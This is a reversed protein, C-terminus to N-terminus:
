LNYLKRVNNNTINSKIEPEVGEFGKELFTPSDPWTGDPHPYDSGWMFNDPAYQRALHPGVNDQQYTAFVQRRFLDSPRTKILKSYHWDYNDAWEYDMRDLLYPIWGIGSEALVVKLGPHRELAGCMVISALAEDSQMAAVCLGAAASAPEPSFHSVTTTGVRIHFSLVLEHEEAAAWLPEWVDHWIPESAFAFAFEAGKLGLGNKGIRKVEAVAAEPSHCPLLGLGILRSPDKSNFDAIFNNYAFLSAYLQDHDDKLSDVLRFIGYIVEGDVEDLDQDVIRLTPDAPRNEDSFFGVERMRKGRDGRDALEAWRLGWPSLEKDGLVWSMGNKTEQVQPVNGRESAAINKTFADVPLFGLDMHSDASFVCFTM